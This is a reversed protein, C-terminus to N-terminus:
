KSGGKTRKTSSPKKCCNDDEKFLEPVEEIKVEEIAQQAQIGAKWTMLGDYCVRRCGGCNKNNQRRKPHAVFNHYAFLKDIDESTHHHNTKGEIWIAFELMEKQKPTLEM